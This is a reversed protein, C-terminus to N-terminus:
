NLNTLVYQGSEIKSKTTKTNENLFTSRHKSTTPSYNWYHKDLYTEGNEIKVIVSNYSQFIRATPTDIVFQNSVEKGSRKSRMNKVKIM